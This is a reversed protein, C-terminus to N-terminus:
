WKYGCNNCKFQSRATKSFLGFAVAGAVKSTTSIKTINTSSCTPCKPKCNEKCVGRNSIQRAYRTEKIDRMDKDFDPNNRIEEDILQNTKTDLAIANLNPHQTKAQEKYYERDYMTYQLKVYESCGSCYLKGEEDYLSKITEGYTEGCKPCYLIKM